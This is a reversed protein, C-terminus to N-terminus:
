QSQITSLYEGLRVVGENLRDLSSTYAFRLHQQAKHQGFDVGPTIVVGTKELVDKCFALSDNTFRKADAYIYFAGHPDVPIELGLARLGPLIHDRRQQFQNRREELMPRTEPAFAALAAFQGPTSPAIFFNQALRELTSVQAEPAVLWGIRWGTMGYYKSFSNVVFADPAVSLVTSTPQDYVLGQYIEDVVLCIDRERAWDAIKKLSEPSLTSGAPNSPTALLIARTRESCTMELQKVTPQYANGADVPVPIARGGFLRAVHRNCPYGPDAMLIEDGQDLLLAMVLQLAGSAGPTVIIRAPDIESGYIDRYERAIAARLVPMGIASTYQTRGEDLAAKAAELIPVPCGFDPEGVEMHIVDRGAAEAAHALNMLEMVYFPNIDQLHSSTM